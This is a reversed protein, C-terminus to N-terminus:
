PTREARQSSKREAKKMLLYITTAALVMTAVLFGYMLYTATKLETKLSTKASLEASKIALDGNASELDGGLKEYDTQLQDFETKLNSYTSNLQKYSGELENYTANLSDFNNQTSNSLNYLSNYGTQLANHDAVLRNYTEALNSYEKHASQNDSAILSNAAELRKLNTAQTNFNALLLSYNADLTQFDEALVDYNVKLITWSDLLTQYSTDRPVYPGGFKQTLYTRWEDEFQLPTRNLAATIAQSFTPATSKILRLVIEQGYANYLYETIYLGIAYDQVMFDGNRVGDRVSSEYSPLYNQCIYEAIGQDFWNAPDQYGVRKLSLDFYFPAHVYEHTLVRRFPNDLQEYGGWSGNWSPGMIHITASSADCYIVATRGFESTDPYIYIVVKFPLKHPYMQQTTNRAIMATDLTVAADVEYGPHYKVVFYQNEISQWQGTQASVIQPPVLILLAVALLLPILAKM